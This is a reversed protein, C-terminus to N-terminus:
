RAGRKRQYSQEVKRDLDSWDMRNLYLAVQIPGCWALWGRRLRVCGPWHWAGLRYWALRRGYPLRIM